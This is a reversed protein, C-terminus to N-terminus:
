NYYFTEEVLLWVGSFIAQAIAILVPLDTM